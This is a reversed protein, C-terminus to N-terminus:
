KVVPLRLAERKKAYRNGGFLADLILTKFQSKNSKILNESVRVVEYGNETLIFNKDSDKEKQQETRHWYDSDFELVIKKRGAPIYGDVVYRYDLGSLKIREEYNIKFEGHVIRRAEVENSSIDRGYGTRDNYGNFMVCNDM